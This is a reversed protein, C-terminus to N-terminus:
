LNLLTLLRQALCQHGSEPWVVGPALPPKASGPSFTFDLDWNELPQTVRVRCLRGQIGDTPIVAGRPVQLIVRAPTEQSEGPLQHGPQVSPPAWTFVPLFGALEWRGNGGPKHSAGTM